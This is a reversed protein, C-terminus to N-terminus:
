VKELCLYAEYTNLLPKKSFHGWDISLRPCAIQVWADVKKFRELKELNIESMLVVFYKRGAKKM